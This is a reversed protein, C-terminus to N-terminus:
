RYELFNLLIQGTFAFIIVTVFSALIAKKATTKRSEKDLEATMTMFIPMVGLPNIITFFTTFSLIGFAILETM